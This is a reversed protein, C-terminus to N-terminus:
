HYILPMYLQFDEDWLPLTVAAQVAAAQVAYPGPELVRVLSTAAFLQGQSDRYTVYLTHEGDRLHLVYLGPAKGVVRGDLVWEVDHADSVNGVKVDLAEGSRLLTRGNMGGPLATEPPGAAARNWGASLAPSLWTSFMAAGLFLALPVLLKLRM